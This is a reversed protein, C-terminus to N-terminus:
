PQAQLGLADRGARELRPDGDGVAVAGVEPLEVEVGAVGLEHDIGDASHEAVV